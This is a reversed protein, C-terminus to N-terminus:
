PTAGMSQLQSQLAADKLRLAVLEQDTRQTTNTATLVAQSFKNVNKKSGSKKASPGEDDDAAKKKKLPSKSYQKKILLLEEHRSLEPKDEADLDIIPYQKMVEEKFLQKNEELRTQYQQLLAKFFDSDSSTTATASYFDNWRFLNVKFDLDHVILLDTVIRWLPGKRNPVGDAPWDICQVLERKLSKLSNQKKRHFIFYELMKQKHEEMRRVIELKSDEREQYMKKWKSQVAQM